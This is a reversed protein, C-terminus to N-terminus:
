KQLTKPTEIWSGTLNPEYDDFLLNMSERAKKIIVVVGIILNKSFFIFKM